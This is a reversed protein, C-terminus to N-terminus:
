GNISGRFRDLIRTKYKVNSTFQFVTTYNRLDVLISLLSDQTDYAIQLNDMHKIMNENLKNKDEDPIEYMHLEHNIQLCVGELVEGVFLDTKSELNYALKIFDTALRSAAQYKGDQVALKINSLAIKLAESSSRM